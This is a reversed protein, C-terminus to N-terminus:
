YKKFIELWEKGREVIAGLRFVIIKKANNKKMFELDKRLESINKYIPENKFIGTGILGVAVYSDPNNIHKINCSCFILLLFIRKM